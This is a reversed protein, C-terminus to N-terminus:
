KNNAISNLAYILGKINYELAYTFKSIPNKLTYVLSSLLEQKSPLQAFNIIASEDLFEEGLIGGVIKLNENSKTEQYCIKSPLIEDEPSFALALQSKIDKVKEAVEKRQIKELTKELLSKKVVKFLCNAEKLKNRLDFLSTSDVGRFDVLVVAKNSNFKEELDKLIEKKQEKTKPM